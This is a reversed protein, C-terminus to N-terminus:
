STSHSLIRLDGISPIVLDPMIPAIDSVDALSAVGTLVLMTAVGCNKGFAIDADLRDGIMVTRSPDIKHKAAICEFMTKSPKGFSVPERGLAYRIMSSLAGTGLFLVGGEVPYTLDDDSSFFACDPNHTLYQFAKSLKTYNISSDWSALVAAVDSPNGIETDVLELTNDAPDTGGCVSIGQEKLEEEIGHMGIVYVKKEKPIKMVSSIYVASAYASSFIEDVAVEVGMRAFKKKFTERSHTPNNTVFIIKKGKSRLFTLVEAAGETPMNGKWIVGDCDFMWTDYDDVLKQYDQVTIPFFPASRQM